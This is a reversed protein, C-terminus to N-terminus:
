RDSCDDQRAPDAQEVGFIMDDIDQDQRIKKWVSDKKQYIMTM